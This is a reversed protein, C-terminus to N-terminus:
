GTMISWTESPNPIIPPLKHSFCDLMFPKVLEYFHTRGKAGIHIRPYRKGRMLTTQVTADVLFNKRLISILLENDALSFCNTTLRFAYHDKLRWDLTGDDM